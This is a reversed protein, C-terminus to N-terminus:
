GPNLRELHQDADDRRQGSWGRDDCLQQLCDRQQRPHQQWGPLKGAEAAALTLSSLDYFSNGTGGVISMLATTDSTLLGGGEWYGFEYALANSLSGFYNIAEDLTFAHLFGWDTLEQINTELGTLTVFGRTQSLDITALNEWDTSLSDSIATAFLMTNAASGEVSLPPNLLDLTTANTSGDGGLAIINLGSGTNESTVVWTQFGIAPASSVTSGAAISYSNGLYGVWNPDYDDGDHWRVLIEPTVDPSGSFDIPFLGVNLATVFITDHGTFDGNWMDVDVGVSYGGMADSVNIAFGNAPTGTYGDTASPVNIPQYNTGLNLSTETTNANYNLTTLGSIVAPEGVGDGVINVTGTAGVSTSEQSINWTAIGEINVGTANASGDFYANLVAGTAPSIETLSDGSTLTPQDVTQGGAPPALLANFVDAGYGTFVDQGVTLAFTAGPGPGPGTLATGGNTVFAAIAALAETVSEPNSTVSVLVQHAETKFIQSLAQDEYGNGIEVAGTASSFDSAVTIKNDLTALDPGIAGNAIAIVANGLYITGHQLLPVWYSLDGSQAARDFLNEYIQNVLTNLNTTTLLDVPTALFPYISLTEAQPTFANAINNLVYDAMDTPTGAPATALASTYQGEWFALGGSNAARGLYGLYITEIQENIPLTDIAGM